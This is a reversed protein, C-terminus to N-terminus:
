CIFLTFVISLSVFGEKVKLFGAGFLIEAKWVSKYLVNINHLICFNIGLDIHRHM